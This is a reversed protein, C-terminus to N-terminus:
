NPKETRCVCYIDIRQVGNELLLKSIQKVTAGTTVVDDVIAVHAHQSLRQAHRPKLYYESASKLLREGRNMRTHGIGISRRGIPNLIAVQQEALKWQKRISKALLYSQNYGRRWQRYWPVPVVILATPFEKIPVENLRRAMLHGLDSAIQADHKYKLNYIDSKLPACYDSVCYL